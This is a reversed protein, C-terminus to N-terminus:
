IKPTVPNIWHLKSFTLIQSIGVLYPLKRFM